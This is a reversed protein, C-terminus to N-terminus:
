KKKKKKPNPEDTCFYLGNGLAYCNLEDDPKSTIMCNIHQGNEDCDWILANIGIVKTPKEEGGQDNGDSQGQNVIM